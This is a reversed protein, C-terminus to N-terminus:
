FCLLARLAGVVADVSDFQEDSRFYCCSGADHRKFEIRWRLEGVRSVEGSLEPEADGGGFPICYGVALSELEVRVHTASLLM